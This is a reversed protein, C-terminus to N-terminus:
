MCIQAGVINGDESGLIIGEKTNTESLGVFV